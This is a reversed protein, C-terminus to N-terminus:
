NWYYQEGHPQTHHEDRVDHLEDVHHLLILLHVQVGHRNREQREHGNRAGRDKDVAEHQLAPLRNNRTQHGRHDCGCEHEADHVNVVWYVSIMTYMM